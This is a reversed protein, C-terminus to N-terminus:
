AVGGEVKPPQIVEYADRSVLQAMPVYASHPGLRIALCIVPVTEGTAKVTCEMLAIDCHAFARQITKFIAQHAHTLAM